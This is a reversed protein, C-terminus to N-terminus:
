HHGASKIDWAAAAILRDAIAEADIRYSGEAIAVRLALLRSEPMGERAFRIEACLAPLNSHALIIV